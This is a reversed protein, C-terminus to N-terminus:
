SWSFADWAELCANAAWSAEVIFWCTWRLWFSTAIVTTGSHGLRVSIYYYVRVATAMQFDSIGQRRSIVRQLHRDRSINAIVEAERHRRAGHPYKAHALNTM